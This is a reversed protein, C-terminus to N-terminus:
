LARRDKGVPPLGEEGRVFNIMEKVGDEVPFEPKFGIEEDLLTADMKWALGFTGPEYSIKAEPLLTKVYDGVERIKRIEFQTNFIRTKTRNV